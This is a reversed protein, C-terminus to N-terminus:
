FGNKLNEQLSYEIIQKPDRKRGLKILNRCIASNKAAERVKFKIGVAGHSTTQKVIYIMRCSSTYQNIECDIIVNTHRIYAVCM